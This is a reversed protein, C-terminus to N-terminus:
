VLADIEQLPCGVCYVFCRDLDEFLLSRFICAEDVTGIHRKELLKVHISNKTEIPYILLISKHENFIKQTCVPLCGLDRGMRGSCAKPMLEEPKNMSCM